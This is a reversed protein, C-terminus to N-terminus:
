NNKGKSTTHGLIIKCVTNSVNETLYEAPPQWNTQLGLATKVSYIIMDADAGSLINSGCELTEPRETVDRLTVTPVKFIACEEQVTGSDSLVAKANQELTIFDFFGFPELFHLSTNATNLGFQEMRIKTRPHTSIIFPLQYIESLKCFAKTLSELREQLDVNEARHMTVLFYNGKIISLKQLIDSSCINQKYHKIVEYIPNGTVYIQEGNIGERLLNQRSRETYPLLIDSSHDIIRRNVEEPVRDDYCRNGAELHYVPFGMRKAVIASLASNTDGLLLIRDPREINIVRECESLIAGVQSFLTEGKCTLIYNPKRLNMEEFFLENLNRDYNQGTHVLIHQCLGDLTPIIRSLRIIEPRTGMITMIKM